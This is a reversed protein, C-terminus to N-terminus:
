FLTIVRLQKKAPLIELACVVRAVGPNELIINFKMTSGDESRALNYIYNAKVKWRILERIDEASLQACGARNLGHLHNDRLYQLKRPDLLVEFQDLEAASAGLANLSFRTDEDDPLFVPREIKYSLFIGYMWSQLSRVTYGAKAFDYALMSVDQTNPRDDEHGQLIVKRHKIFARVLMMSVYAKIPSAFTFDLYGVYAPLQKFAADLAAAQADRLNNAYLFCLDLGQGAYPEGAAVLNDKLETIAWGHHDKRYIFDGLLVGHNSRPDFAPLAHEVIVGGYHLDDIRQWNFVFARETKDASPVLATKLDQYQIGKSKLVQQLEELSRQLDHFVEHDTLKFHEATVGLLVNSRAELTFITNFSLAAV